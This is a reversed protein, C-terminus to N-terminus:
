PALMGNHSLCTSDEVGVVVVTYRGEQVFWGPDTM